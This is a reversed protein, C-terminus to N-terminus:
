TRHAVLRHVHRHFHRHRRSRVVACGIALKQLPARSRQADSVMAVIQSLLSDAGVHEARDRPNGDSEDPAVVRDGINKEAPLSEGTLM